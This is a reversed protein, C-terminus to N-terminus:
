QVHGSAEKWNALGALQEVVYITNCTEVKNDNISVILSTRVDDNHENSGMLVFKGQCEDRHPWFVSAPTLVAHTLKIERKM